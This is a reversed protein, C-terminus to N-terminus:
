SVLCLALTLPITLCPVCVFGVVGKGNLYFRFVIVVSGFVTLTVTFPIGEQGKPSFFGKKLGQLPKKM